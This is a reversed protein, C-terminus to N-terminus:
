SVASISNGVECHFQLGQVVYFEMYPHRRAVGMRMTVCWCSLFQVRAREIDLSSASRATTDRPMADQADRSCSAHTCRARKM